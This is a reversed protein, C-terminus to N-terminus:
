GTEPAESSDTRLLAELRSLAPTREPEVPPEPLTIAELRITATDSRRAVVRYSFPIASVGSGSERVEFWTANKAAVYLGSCDGEPTLFVYYDSTDAVAMFDDDLEVRASGDLLHATGFDEFWSEPSEMCYLRRRSGDPHDVVASKSGTVLLDGSIIVKGVFAGGWGETSYGVVGFGQDCRGQVGAGGAGSSGFVGSGQVSSGRVGDSTTSRALIGPANGSVAAIAEGPLPQGGGTASEGGICLLAVGARNELTLAPLFARNKFLTTTAATSNERGVVLPAGDTM